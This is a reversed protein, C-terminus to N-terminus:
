VIAGGFLGAMLSIDSILSKITGVPPSMMMMPTPTAMTSPIMLMPEMNMKWLVSFNMQNSGSAFSIPGNVTIGKSNATLSVSDKGNIRISDNSAVIGAESDPFLKLTKSM